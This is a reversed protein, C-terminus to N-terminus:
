QWRKELEFGPAVQRGLEFVFGRMRKGAAELGYRKPFDGPSRRELRPETAVLASALTAVDFAGWSADPEWGYGEHVPGPWWGVRVDDALAYDEPGGWGIYVLRNGALVSDFAPYDWAEAHSASVYINHLAHLVAIGQDSFVRDEIRVRDAVNAKTWGRQQVAPDALWDELSEEPGSPYGKWKGFGSVKLTLSAKEGPQFATLFAGILAHQGKRPEWKAINLFRKGTPVKPYREPIQAVLGKPDYANPVLRLKDVAVGAGEFVMMNRRCQLWVQGVRRLVGALMPEVCDREWPTYVIASRLVADAYAPDLRTYNPCVLERLALGSRLVGQHITVPSHKASTRVLDKTIEFVEDHLIDEGALYPLGGHNVRHQISRLMVPIGVDALARAHMRAHRCLGDNLTEYDAHYLLGTEHAAPRGPAVYGDLERDTPESRSLGEGTEENFPSFPSEGENQWRDSM